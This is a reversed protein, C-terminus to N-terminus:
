AHNPPARGLIRHQPSASDVEVGRSEYLAFDLEDVFVPPLIVAPPTHLNAKLHCIACGTPADAPTSGDSSASPRLTCLPCYPKPSAALDSTDQATALTAQGTPLAVMGRRHAPVFVVFFAVVWLLVTVRFWRSAFVERM